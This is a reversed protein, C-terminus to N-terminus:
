ASRRGFYRHGLLLLIQRTLLSLALYLGTAVLYSEFARFNRSQIFNAAYSLEPAAIQSCVASGLMVIVIQSVLAPWVRRLAPKIVVHVFAQGRSMALSAAAEFQGRPTAQVGQDTGLLRDVEVQQLPAPRSATGTVQGLFGTVGVTQRIFHWTEDDMDMEVLVYGPFIKKEVTVVKGGRTTKVKEKPVIVQTIRTHLGVAKSRKEVNQKVKDEQGAYTHVAYWLKAM